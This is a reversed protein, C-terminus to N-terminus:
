TPSALLVVREREADADFRARFADLDEGIVAIPPGGRRCGDGLTPLLVALLLLRVSQRM